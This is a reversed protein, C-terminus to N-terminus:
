GVLSRRCSSGPGHVTEVAQAENRVGVVTSVVAPHRRVFALAAQPLTM